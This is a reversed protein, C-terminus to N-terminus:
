PYGAGDDQVVTPRSVLQSPGQLTLLTSLTGRNGRERLYRTAYVPGSDADPRVEVALKARTGPPYFATLRFSITRGAAIHLTRAPPPDGAAGIVRIPTVTVTAAEEPASLLLTSETPRDIVLDTLLAPGTLPRASAAYAIERVPGIQFRQVDVLSAGAVVPAGSSVIRATVPSRKTLETVDIVQTRGAPVTVEAMKTPVFQGDNLAVEVKVTTDDETPNGVLLWRVGPGVPIGPVVVDTAPPLAQPVFEFGLPVRGLVRAHRVAAVVRGQRSKVHVVLETLDPALRDLAMLLRSRPAVTIGQGPRPDAAGNRGFVTVDVTAPSADINALVLVTRDPVGTSSGVFWADRGPPQCRLGALGRYPGDSVRAVQEVELGTALAQTADVVVGDDNVERRLNVAVQGPETLPV